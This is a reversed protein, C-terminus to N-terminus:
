CEFIGFIQINKGGSICMCTVVYAASSCIYTYFPNMIRLSRICGQGGGEEQGVWRAPLDVAGSDQEASATEM